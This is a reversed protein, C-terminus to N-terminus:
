SPSAHRPPPQISAGSSPVPVMRVIRGPDNLVVYLAGDPGNLVDRVRGLGKFLVEEHVVRNGEIVLRRLSQGGLATVFLDNKWGPFRDGTYFVIACAAISPTWQMVPQEMGAQETKDTVPTGDYNMGYSIVPWGYNRGPEIRNLEDGGRPGHETSWLDGTVPHWDLGQPNRNGYSWISPLAGPRGVFPNDKPIRGDDHIRHIKGDPLSLDQADDQHGRDGISYFLHGERDFLFRSGFHTNDDWYLEPPAKYLTEQDVWKSDRVRGRVIVTMSAGKVLGPESFSLYIWGNKAFDPHLAVDMLGGDQQVWVRPLGTVAAGPPQGPTILRLRGPRETVIMRGDPLFAMGWPTELGEAVTELKFSHRESRFVADLRPPAAPPGQRRATDAQERILIVLSRIQQDTLLAKFAPMAGNARGERISLAVSADDGGFAWVDDLLSPARGGVMEPGHCSACAQAYVKVVVGQGVGAAAGPTQAPAVCGPLVALLILSRSLKM